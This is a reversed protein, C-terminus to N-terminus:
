CHIVLCCVSLVGRQPRLQHPGPQRKQAVACDVRRALADGDAFSCVSLMLVLFHLLCAACVPTNFGAGIELVVLKKAEGEKGEGESQTKSVFEVFAKNQALYPDHIFRDCRSILM